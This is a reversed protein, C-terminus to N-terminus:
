ESPTRLNTAVPKVRARPAVPLSPRRLLHLDGERASPLYLFGLSQLRHIIDELGCPAFSHHEFVIESVPAFIDARSDLLLPCEAGEADVKLVLQEIPFAERADALVNSLSVVRVRVTQLCSQSEHHFLSHSWSESSTYFPLEGEQDSVAAQVVEIAKDHRQASEAFHSLCYFNTPEPEYSVVAKAGAALAYAAFYGKHAGIDLVIRDKLNVERYFEDLLVQGLVQFDTAANQGDVLLEGVCSHVPYFGTRQKRRAAVIRILDLRGLPTLWQRTLIHWLRDIRRM